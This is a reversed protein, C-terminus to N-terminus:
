QSVKKERANFILDAFKGVTEVPKVYGLDPNVLEVTRKYKDITMLSARVISVRVGSVEFRIGMGSHTLHVIVGDLENKLGHNRFVSLRSGLKSRSTAAAAVVVSGHEFEVVQSLMVDDVWENIKEAKATMESEPSRTPAGFLKSFYFNVIKENSYEHLRMAKLAVATEIMFPNMKKKKTM